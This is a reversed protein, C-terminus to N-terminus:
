VRPARLTRRVAEGSDIRPGNKHTQRSESLTDLVLVPPHPREPTGLCWVQARVLPQLVRRGCAPCTRTNLVLRAHGRM